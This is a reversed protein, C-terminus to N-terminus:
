TNGLMLTQALFTNVNSTPDIQGNTGNTDAM